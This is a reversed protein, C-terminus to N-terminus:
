STFDKVLVWATKDSNAKYVQQIIRYNHISTDSVRVNYLEVDKFSLEVNPYLKLTTANQNDNDTEICLIPENNYSNINAMSNSYALLPQINSIKYLKTDNKNYSYEICRIYISNNSTPVIFTRRDTNNYQRLNTYGVLSCNTPEARNGSTLTKLNFGGIVMIGGNLTLAYLVNNIKFLGSFGISLYYGVNNVTDILYSYSNIQEIIIYDNYKVVRGYVIAKYFNVDFTVEGTKTTDETMYLTEIGTSKNYKYVSCVVNNNVVIRTTYYIYGGYSVLGGNGNPITKMISNTNNTLDYKYIKSDSNSYDPFWYLCNDEEDYFVSSYTANYSLTVLSTKTDNIIDIKYLNNAEYKYYYNGVLVEGNGLEDTSILSSAPGEETLINISSIDKTTTLIKLNNKLYEDYLYANNNVLFCIDSNVSQPLTKTFTYSIKNYEDKLLTGVVKGNNTYGSSTSFMDTESATLGIDLYNWTSNNYQYIGPFNIDGVLVFKACNNSYEFVDYTGTPAEIPSVAEDITYTIGDSSIYSIRTFTTTFIEIDCSSSDLSVRIDCQSDMCMMNMGEYDQIASDFTVTQPFNLTGGSFNNAIPSLSKNYVLCIDGEKAPLLDREALTSVKFIDENEIAEVILEVSSDIDSLPTSASLGLTEKITDVQTKITQAKSTLSM